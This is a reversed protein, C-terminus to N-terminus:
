ESSNKWIEKLKFAALKPSRDRTFVGKLNMVVRRFHQPTRFDAFNWVHEGIMYKKSRFLKIYEQLYKSQYEETFMQDSTSHSGPITDVGFETFMVPKKYKSYILDMEKSLIDVAREMQGPYEYWGYYRNLSIFDCFEFVPDDIGARSCNPVTIPRSQDLSRVYDFIEGWYKKGRGDYYSPEGVLNPENGAAWAIVSPHNNDREILRLLSEKHNQLTDGNVYRFDLSVAPVENIILIGKRDAYSLIEDSYPYHSTRFSNANIWKLLEFDKVIQPLFLGKGTVPFDEHKGFGKMYIEKGNLMLKNKVLEIERVGIPLSYEDIIAKNVKLKVNLSYLFPDEPSWFRCDKIKLRATSSCASDYSIEEASIKVNEISYDIEYSQDTIAETKVNLTGNKKGEISTQIQLKSIFNKPTSYVIVPRNIGGFPTFDFRAAPYTEERLRNERQYYDSEIGQPISSDSLKNNVWLVLNAYEGPSVFNTIEFEFPLFGSYNEGVLKGNIWLKSNYDASGIRIVIRKESFEAPIFIRKSYWVSGIYHLLGLEELQENWSGPVAIELSSEFGNFWKKGFGKEEKDVKFKWFDNIEIFSRYYNRIPYLM